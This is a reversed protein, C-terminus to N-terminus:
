ARPPRDPGGRACGTGPVHLLVVTVIVPGSPRAPAGSWATTSAAMSTSSRIPRVGASRSDAGAARGAAGVKASYTGTTDARTLPPQRLAYPEYRFRTVSCHPLRRM